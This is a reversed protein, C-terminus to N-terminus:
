KVMPLIRQAKKHNAKVWWHKLYVRTYRTYPINKPQGRGRNNAIGVSDYVTNHEVSLHLWSHLCNCLIGSYIDSKPFLISFYNFVIGM